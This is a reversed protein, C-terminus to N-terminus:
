RIAGMTYIIATTMISGGEKRNDVFPNGLEVVMAAQAAWAAERAAALEEDTALEDAHREAVLLALAAACYLGAAIM